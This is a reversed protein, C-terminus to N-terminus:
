DEEELEDEDIELEDDEDETSEDIEKEESKIGLLELLEEEERPPYEEELDWLNWSREEESLKYKEGVKVKYSIQDRKKGRKRQRIIAITRGSKKKMINGYDGLIESIGELVTWKHNFVKCWRVGEEDEYPEQGVVFANWLFNSQRKTMEAARAKGRKALAKSKECLVCTKRRFKKPLSRDKRCREVKIDGEADKFFHIVKEEYNPQLLRVVLQVGELRKEMPFPPFSIYKGETWDREGGGSGEVRKRVKDVISDVKKKKKAMM